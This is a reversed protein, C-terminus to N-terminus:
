YYESVMSAVQRYLWCVVGQDPGASSVQNALGDPLKPSCTNLHNCLNQGEGEWNPDATMYFCFFLDRASPAALALTTFFSLAAIVKM